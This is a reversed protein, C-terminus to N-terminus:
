GLQGDDTLLLNTIGDVLKAANFNFLIGQQLKTLRMYSLVQAKHVPLVQEVSKLELVLTDEVVFDIRYLGELKLDKYTIPVPLQRKFGIQQLGFEHALCKEYISELLGPGLARHVEIACGIVQRALDSPRALM